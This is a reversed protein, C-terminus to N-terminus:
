APPPLYLASTVRGDDTELVWSSGKQWRPDPGLDLGDRVVLTELARPIVDGHSCLAVTESSLDRMLSVAERGMGEALEDREEVDVGIGEALPAVTQTCRLYPSSLVRTIAYPALQEVLAKAQLRGRENLPRLLDPEDWGRRSEAVAHRVLILPIAVM